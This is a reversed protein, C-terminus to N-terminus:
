CNLCAACRWNSAHLLDHRRLMGCPASEDVGDGEDKTRAREGRASVKTRTYKRLNVKRRKSQLNRDEKRM